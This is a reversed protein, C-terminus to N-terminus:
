ITMQRPGVEQVNRETPLLVVDLSRMHKLVSAKQGVVYVWGTRM